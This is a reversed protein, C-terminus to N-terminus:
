QSTKCFKNSVGITLFFGLDNGGALIIGKDTFQKIKM